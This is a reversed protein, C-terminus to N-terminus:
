RSRRRVSGPSPPASDAAPAIGAPVMFVVHCYGVPALDAEALCARAGAGQCKPCHRNRCRNCAIRRHGCDGCGEIDGGPAATRCTGIASMVTLQEPLSANRHSVSCLPV